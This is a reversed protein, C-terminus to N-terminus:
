SHVRVAGLSAKFPAATRSVRRRGRACPAYPRVPDECRRIALPTPVGLLRAQFGIEVPFLKRRSRSLADSSALHQAACHSPQRLVVSADDWCIEGAAAV